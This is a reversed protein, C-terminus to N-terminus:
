QCFIFRVVETHLPKRELIAAIIGFVFNHLMFVVCLLAFSFCMFHVENQRKSTTKGSNDATTNGESGNNSITFIEVARADGVKSSPPNSPNPPDLHVDKGGSLQINDTNILQEADLLEITDTELQLLHHQRDAANATSVDSAM